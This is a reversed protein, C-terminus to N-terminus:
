RGQSHTSCGLRVDFQYHTIGNSSKRRAKSKELLERLEAESPAIKDLKMEELEPSPNDKETAVSPHDSCGSILLGICLMILLILKTSKM